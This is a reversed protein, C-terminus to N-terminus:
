IKFSSNTKRQHHCTSSLWRMNYVVIVTDNIPAKKMCVHFCNRRMVRNQLTTTGKVLNVLRLLDHILIYHYEHGDDVLLLDNASIERTECSVRLPVLQKEIYRFVNIRCDNLQKFRTMQGFGM